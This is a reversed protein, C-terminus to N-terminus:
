KGKNPEISEAAMKLEPQNAPPHITNMQAGYASLIGILAANGAMRANQDPLARCIRLYSMEIPSTAVNEAREGTIIYLVDAGLAAIAQLYPADPSRENKEYNIQALKKVGGIEGFATQNLSLREREEKLREGITSM